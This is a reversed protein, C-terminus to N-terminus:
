TNDPIQTRFNTAVQALQNVAQDFERTWDDQGTTPRSPAGETPRSLNPIFTGGSIRTGELRDCCFCACIASRTNRKGINVTGMSSNADNESTMFVVIIIIIIISLTYALGLQHM